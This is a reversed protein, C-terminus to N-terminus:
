DWGSNASFGWQSSGSTNKKKKKSRALTDRLRSLREAEEREKEEEMKAAMEAEARKVKELERRQEEEEERMREEEEIKLAQHQMKIIEENDFNAEESRIRELEEKFTDEVAAMPSLLRGAIRLERLRFLKYSTTVVDCDIAIAEDDSITADRRVLDTFGQIVWHCIRVQRGLCIQEVSTLSSLRELEGKATDRLRLFRWESSLTLVSLWEEKSLSLQLSFSLPYLAKLFNRFDNHPVQKLIIPDSIDQAHAKINYIEVFDPSENFFRHTPVRFLLDEAKFTVFYDEMFYEEDKLLETEGLKSTSPGPENDESTSM